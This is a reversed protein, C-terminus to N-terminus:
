LFRCNFLFMDNSFAVLLQSYIHALRHSYASLSFSYFMSFINCYLFSYIFHVYLGVMWFYDTRCNLKFLQFYYLSTCCQWKTHKQNQGWISCNLITHPHIGMLFSQAQRHPNLYSTPPIWHKICFFLINFKSLIWFM